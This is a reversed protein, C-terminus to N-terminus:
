RRRRKKRPALRAVMTLGTVGLSGAIILLRPSLWWASMVTTADGLGFYAGILSGILAAFVYSLRYGTTREKKVQDEIVSAAFAVAASVILIIPLQM